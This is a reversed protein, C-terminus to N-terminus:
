LGRHFVTIFTSYFLIFFYADLQDNVLNTSLHTTLLIDFGQKLYGSKM